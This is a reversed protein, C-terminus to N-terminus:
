GGTSVMLHNDVFGHASLKQQMVARVRAVGDDTQVLRPLALKM